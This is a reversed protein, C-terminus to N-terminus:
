LIQGLLKMRVIINNHIVSNYFNYQLFSKLRIRLTLCLSINSGYTNHIYVKYLQKEASQNRVFTFESLKTIDAKCGVTKNRFVVPQNSRAKDSHLSNHASGIISILSM